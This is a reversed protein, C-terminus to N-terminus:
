TERTLPVNLFRDNDCFACSSLPLRATSYLIFNAPPRAHQRRCAGFASSTGSGFARSCTQSNQNTFVHFFILVPCPHRGPSFSKFMEETIEVEWRMGFLREVHDFGPPVCVPPCDRWRAACLERLLRARIQSGAGSWVVRRTRADHVAHTTRADRRVLLMRPSPFAAHPAHTRSCADRRAHVSPDPARGQTGRVGELSRLPGM